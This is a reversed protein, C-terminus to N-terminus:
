LKLRSSLKTQEAKVQELCELSSVGLNAHEVTSNSLEAINSVNTTIEEIVQTQEESAAAIQLNMDHIRMVQENIKELAGGADNVQSVSNMTRENGQEMVAIAEQAGKQINVIIDQIETTSDQTKQALSRVEDAVVAFGRVQEGARAAEIAANLALLNTQEAIGQIVSLVTGINQSEEELKQVVDSANGIEEALKNMGAVAGQMTRTGEDSLGRTEDVAEAANTANSSIEGSASAM